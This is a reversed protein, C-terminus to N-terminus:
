ILGFEHHIIPNIEKITKVLRRKDLENLNSFKNNIFEEERGLMIYFGYKDIMAAIKDANEGLHIMQYIDISSM